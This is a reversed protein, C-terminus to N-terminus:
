VNPKFFLYQLIFTTISIGIFWYDSVDIDYQVLFQRFIAFAGLTLFMTAISIAFRADKIKDPNKLLWYVLYWVSTWGTYFLVWCFLKKLEPTPALTWAFGCVIDVLTLLLFRRNLPSSLFTRFTAM